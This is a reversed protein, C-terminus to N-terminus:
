KEEVLSIEVLCLDTCNIAEKLGLSLDAIRGLDEFGGRDTVTAIRWDNSYQNRVKVKTNLPLQNFALTLDQEVFRNGNAMLLDERCGVCGAESYYSATGYWAIVENNTVEKDPTRVEPEKQHSGKIVVMKANKFDQNLRYILVSSFVSFGILMFFMASIGLLIILNAKQIEKISEDM